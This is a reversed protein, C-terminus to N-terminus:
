DRYGEDDHEYSDDARDPDMRADHLDPSNRGSLNEYGAAARPDNDIADFRRPSQQLSAIRSLPSRQLLMPSAPRTWPASRGTVYLAARTNPAPVYESPARRSRSPDADRLNNEIRTRERPHPVNEDHREPRHRARQSSYDDRLIRETTGAGEFRSARLGQTGSPGARSAMARTSDSDRYDGPRHTSTQAQRDGTLQWLSRHRAESMEQESWGIDELRPETPYVHGSESEPVRARSKGKDRAPEKNQPSSPPEPAATDVDMRGQDDAGAAQSLRASTREERNCRSAAADQTATTVLALSANATPHETRAAPNPTQRLGNQIPM